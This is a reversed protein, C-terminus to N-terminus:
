FRVQGFLGFEDYTGSVSGGVNGNGTSLTGAKTTERKYVLAFDVIKVPSYQIGVNFYEDKFANNTDDKPKVWDYRGFVSIKDVPRVSAFVSYGNASDAVASTVQTWNKAYFYEVGASFMKNSYAILANFRSATHLTPAGGQIDKGLKGTYGGIAATFGKYQASVRGEFDITKTLQVNRYGSGDVASVQYSLLGGALTGLVHVGWDASTGFKTRDAVTQEIHRYGYIGEAFPIWPLDAAGLRVIFAPDYKAELYAKKVYLGKGVLNSTQGIVNDIDTTLNVAYIDNFKHDVGLYFRKINFGGDGETKVGNSYRSITSINYYMRGSIKTDFFDKRKVDLAIQKDVKAQALEAQGRIVDLQELLVAQRVEAEAQADADVAPAPPTAQVQSLRASLEDIKAQQADLKAAMAKMAASEGTPRVAAHKKHKTAADASTAFGGLATAALLAVTLKTRIM